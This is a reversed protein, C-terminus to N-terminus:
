SAPNLSKSFCVSFLNDVWPEFAPTQQYGRGRYLGIAEPQLTGTELIAHTFGRGTACTELHDLLGKSIGKGRQTELVFVRKIEVTDSSVVRFGGCGVPVGDISALAFYGAAACFDDAVIPTAVEDPYRQLLDASLAAILSSVAPDTVDAATFTVTPM